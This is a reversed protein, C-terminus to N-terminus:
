SGTRTRSTLAFRLRMWLSWSTSWTMRLVQALILLRSGRNSFPLSESHKMEDTSDFSDYAATNTNDWYYDGVFGGDNDEDSRKVAAAYGGQYARIGSVRGSRFHHYDHLVGDVVGSGIHTWVNEPTKAAIQCAINCGITPVFDPHPSFVAGVDRKGNRTVFLSFFGVMVAYAVGGACVWPNGLTCAAAAVATSQTLVAFIVANDARPQLASLSVESVIGSTAVRTELDRSPIVAMVEAKPLSAANVIASMAALLLARNLLVM